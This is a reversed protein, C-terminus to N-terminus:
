RLDIGINRLEYIAEDSGHYAATKLYEVAEGSKGIKKYAMGLLYNVKDNDPNIQLARLYFPIAEDYNNQGAYVSGIKLYSTIYEPNIDAAKEYNALATNANNMKLYMDGLNCYAAVFGIDSDIARKYYNAAEKYREEERFTHGILNYFGSQSFNGSLLARRYWARANEQMGVSRYCLGILLYAREMEPSLTAAKELYETAQLFKESSNSIQAKLFLANGLHYYTDANYPDLESSIKLHKAASDYNSLKTLAIAYNRYTEASGANLEVAKAYYKAAMFYQENIYYTNAKQLIVEKSYGSNRYFYVGAGALLFCVTFIISFKLNNDIKNKKSM